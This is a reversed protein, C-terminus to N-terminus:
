GEAELEAMGAGTVRVVAGDEAELLDRAALQEVGARVDELDLGTAAALADLPLRGSTALETAASVLITRQADADM